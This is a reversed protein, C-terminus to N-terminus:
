IMMGAPADGVIEKKWSEPVLRRYKYAILIGLLLFAGVSLWIAAGMVLYLLIKVILGLVWSM